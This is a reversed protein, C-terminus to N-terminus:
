LVTHKWRFVHDAIQAPTTEAGFLDVVNGSPGILYTFMSHDIVYDDSELEEASLTRVYVKYAKALSRMSADSGTWGVVRPHFGAVYKTMADLSDRPPDVTAFVVNVKAALAPEAVELRKLASALKNLETPCIDPCHTFGFYLLTLVGQLDEQTVVPNGEATSTVEFPGGLQPYPNSVDTNEEDALDLNPENPNLTQYTLVGMVGSIAVLVAGVAKQMGTPENTAASSMGRQGYRGGLRGIVAGFRGGIVSANLRFM